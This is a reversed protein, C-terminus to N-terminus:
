SKKKGKKCGKKKKKKGVITWGKKMLNPINARTITMDTGHDSENEQDAAPARREIPDPIAARMGTKLALRGRTSRLTFSARGRRQAM